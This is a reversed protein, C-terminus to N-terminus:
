PSSHGLAWLPELQHRLWIFGREPDYRHVAAGAVQEPTLWSALDLYAHEPDYWVVTCHTEVQKRLLDFLTETVLGM